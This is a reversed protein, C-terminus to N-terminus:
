ILYHFIIVDRSDRLRLVKHTLYIIQKLIPLYLEFLYNSLINIITILKHENGHM